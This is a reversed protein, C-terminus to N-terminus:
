IRGKELVKVVNSMLEETEKESPTSESIDDMYSNLIITQSAKPFIERSMEATKHLAIIAIAASPCDGFNVATMVYTDPERKLDLDRWLFRHTMQDVEVIRISHFLKSIDGIFAFREERFRLLVVLLNNLMDSGKAYYENLVHGHYSTSSNFVTRCPTSESDPKLVAHHAIYHMPGDYSQIEDDTLKSAVGRKVMDDIQHRYLDAHKSNSLLGKEMMKLKAFAAPKNDPLESPDCIWPYSALWREKEPLYTLNSEILNYEREDKLSMNKGVPHCHGCRCSGCKPTREASINEMIYFDEVSASAFHVAAHQVLKRTNKKLRPHSGGIVYGFRNELILLHGCAQKRIPYFAAYEYDILCDVKGEKARNLESLKVKNFLHAVRDM